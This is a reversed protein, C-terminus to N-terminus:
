DGINQKNESKGVKLLFFLIFDFKLYHLLLIIKCKFSITSNIIDNLCFKLCQANEYKKLYLKAKKLSSFTNDSLYRYYVRIEDSLNLLILHMVGSKFFDSKYYRDVVWNIYKIRREGHNWKLSSMSNDTVFRNYYFQNIYVIREVNRIVDLVFCVDEGLDIDEPFYLDKISERKLLKCVPGSLCLLADGTESLLSVLRYELQRKDNNEFIRNDGTFPLFFEETSSFYNVLNCFSMEACNEKVAKLLDECITNSVTDDADVFMIWEGTAERLGYNRASSPGSNKQSYVKIRSDKLAMDNCVDLTNDVSGDNIIIIEINIYTQNLVSDVCRRLFKEANYAPIIVSIKDEM